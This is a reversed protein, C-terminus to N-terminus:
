KVWFSEWYRRDTEYVDIPDDSGLNKSLIGFRQTERIYEDRPRFDPMDFRKVENLLRLRM